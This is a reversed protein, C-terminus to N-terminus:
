ITILSLYAGFLPIILQRGSRIMAVFIQAAGASGLDARHTKMLKGVSKWRPHGRTAVGAPHGTEKIYSFALVGAFATMGAALYYPGALDFWDALTKSLIPRDFCGAVDVGQQQL